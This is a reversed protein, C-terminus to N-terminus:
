VAEKWRHKDIASIRFSAAFMLAYIDESVEQVNGIRLPGAGEDRKKVVYICSDRSEKQFFDSKINCEAEHLFFEEDLQKKEEENPPCM